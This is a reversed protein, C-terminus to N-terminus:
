PTTQLSLTRSQLVKSGRLVEVHLTCVGGPRVTVRQKQARARCQGKSTIVITSRHPIPMSLALAVQNYTYYRGASLAPSLERCYGPPTQGSAVLKLWDGLGSRDSESLVRLAGIHDTDLVSLYTPQGAACLTTYAHYANLPDVSTDRVAVIFWTPVNSLRRISGQDPTTVPKRFLKEWSSGLAYTLSEDVCMDKVRSWLRRGAPTLYDQSRFTPAYAQEYAAVVALTAIKTAAAHLDFPDDLLPGRTSDFGPAASGLMGYPANVVLGRVALQPAYSTAEGGVGLVMAGGVSHGHVVTEPLAGTFLHTAWAADLISRSADGSVLSTQVGPSRAGPASPAVVVWGESIYKDAAMGVGALAGGFPNGIVGCHDGLGYSGHQTVLIRATPATVPDAVVIASVARPRGARDLAHYM